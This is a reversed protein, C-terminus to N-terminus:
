TFGLWAATECKLLGFVYADETGFAKRLIGERVFGIGENFKISRTNSAAITITIRNCNLQEFPWRL